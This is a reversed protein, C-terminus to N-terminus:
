DPYCIELPHIEDWWWVRRWLLGICMWFWYGFNYRQGFTDVWVVLGLGRAKVSMSSKTTTATM